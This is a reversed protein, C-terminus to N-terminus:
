DPPQRSSVLVSMSDHLGGDDPAARDASADGPL